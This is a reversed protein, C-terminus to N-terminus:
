TNKKSGFGNTLPAKKEVRAEDRMIHTREQKKNENLNQGDDFIYVWRQQKKKQTLKGGGNGGNKKRKKRSHIKYKEGSLKESANKGKVNKQASIACTRVILTHRRILGTEQRHAVRDWHPHLRHPLSPGM